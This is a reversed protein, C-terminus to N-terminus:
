KYRESLRLSESVVTNIRRVQQGVCRQLKLHSTDKLSYNQCSQRVTELGVVIVKIKKIKKFKKWMELM